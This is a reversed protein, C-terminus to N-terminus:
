EVEAIVSSLRVGAPVDRAAKRTEPPHTITSRFQLAARYHDQLQTLWDGAPPPPGPPLAGPVNQANPMQAKLWGPDLRAYNRAQPDTSLYHIEGRQGAASLPYQWGELGSLDPTGGFNEQITWYQRVDSIWKSSMGLYAQSFPWLNRTIAVDRGALNDFNSIIMTAPQLLTNRTIVKRGPHNEDTVSSLNIFRYLGPIDFINEAAVLSIERTVSLLYENQGKQPPSIWWNQYVMCDIKQQHTTIIGVRHDFVCRRLCLPWKGTGGGAIVYIGPMNLHPKFRSCLVACDELCLGNVDHLLMVDQDDEVQQEYSLTFGSLRCSELSRLRHLRRKSSNEVDSQWHASEIITGVTSILGADRKRDWELSERYPGQDLVQVVEGDQQVDLAAQITSFMASGDQRVTLIKRGQMWTRLDPPALRQLNVEPLVQVTDGAAPDAKALPLSVAPAAPPSESGPTQPRRSNAMVGLLIVVSVVGVPLLWFLFKKRRGAPSDTWPRVGSPEALIRTAEQAQSDASRHQLDSRHQLATQDSVSSTFVDGQLLSNLYRVLEAATQIRDAPDKAVLQQFLQNVEPSVDAREVMLDPASQLLHAKFIAAATSTGAISFPPRGTLLFHLTCGLSYLDARADASHTSEWQEPAMYAPTGLVQGTSTLEEAVEDQQLRALGMDLIKIEQNTTWFLNSPKIDRHVLGQEHAYALGQAVQRLVSLAEPVSLPGSEHIKRSVDMGEVYEMVLYHIGAEAGADYARVIHPHEMAGVAAMEREFRAVVDPHSTLNQSLVKLAVIKRLKVHRALYVAGMGGQGLKKLLVYNGIIEPPPPNGAQLLPVVAPNGSHRTVEHFDARSSLTEEPRPRSFIDLIIEEWEPLRSLYEEAAPAEGARGRQLLECKLLKRFLSAQCLAPVFALFEELQPRSGNEWRTRFEECVRDIEELLIPEMASFGDPRDFNATM